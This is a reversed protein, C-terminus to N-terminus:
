GGNQREGFKSRQHVCLKQFLSVSYVPGGDRGARLLALAGRILAGFHHFVSRSFLQKLIFPLTLYFKRYAQQTMHRLEGESFHAIWKPCSIAMLPNAAFARWIDSQIVGRELALQYLPTDPYLSCISYQVWDPRIRKSFHLTRAIDAHEEDLNGFMFDALTRIGLRRCSQFVQAAQGLDINKRMAALVKPSGSELGFSLRTCGARRMVGLLEEDVCDVRTRAEWLVGLNKRILGECIAHVRNKDVTFIDDHIFIGSIGLARIQEIESLVYEPSHMRYHRGMRKCFICAYPCGRSTMMTTMLRKQGLISRYKRFASAHRAPFAIQDLDSIWSAVPTFHVGDDQKFALGAIDRLAHPDDLNNLFQIFSFEGEGALAYDVGALQATERPYITPHPGGIIIKARTATQRLALVLRYADQMSFTMAQIGIVDPQHALAALAAQAHTVGELHADIFVSAHPSRELAAQLYLLGLPPMFGRNKEVFRPVSGILQNQLPPHILVVKKTCSSRSAMMLVGPRHMGRKRGYYRATIFFNPGGM